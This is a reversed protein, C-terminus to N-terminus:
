AVQIPDNGQRPEKEELWRTVATRGVDSDLGTFEGSRVMRGPGLYPQESVGQESSVVERVELGFKGAFEYDRDDHAPVAMIAGTGYGILVYDAVWIPVQEGNVPNRAHVGLFLGTKEKKTSTRDQDSVNRARDVYAAVERALDASVLKEVLPHEPALVLYTAGFLTDPRTTFIEVPHERGEKDVATFTAQVGESRGIWNRQMTKVKEPWDLEDLGRLLRDAYVTIRLM